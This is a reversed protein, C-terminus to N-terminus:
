VTLVIRLGDLVLETIEVGNWSGAISGNGMTSVLELEPLIVIWEVQGTQKNMVERPGVKDVHNGREQSVITDHCSVLGCHSITVVLDTEVALVQAVLVGSVEPPVHGQAAALIRTVPRCTQRSGGRQRNTQDEDPETGAWAITPCSCAHKADEAGDLVGLVGTVQLTFLVVENVPDKLNLIAHVVVQHTGRCSWCQTMHRTM